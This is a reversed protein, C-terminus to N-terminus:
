FRIKNPFNKLNAVSDIIRNFEKKSIKTILDYGPPTVFFLGTKQNHLNDPETSSYILQSDKLQYLGYALTTFDIKEYGPVLNGYSFSFVNKGGKFGSIYGNTQRFFIEKNLISLSDMLSRINPLDVFKGDKIAFWGWNFDGYNHALGIYDRGFRVRENGKVKYNEYNGSASNKLSFIHYNKFDDMAGDETIQIWFYNTGSESYLTDRSAAFINSTKMLVLNGSKQHCSHFVILIFAGFLIVKILKM